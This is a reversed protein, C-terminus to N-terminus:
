NVLLYLTYNEDRSSQDFVGLVLTARKWEALDDENFSLTKDYGFHFTGPKQLDPAVLILVPVNERLHVARGAALLEHLTLSNRNQTTFSTWRAFREERPYFIRNTLYYPLTDALYDPEALIVSPRLDPRGQVLAALQSASSAAKGYDHHVASIGKFAQVALLLILVGRALWATGQRLLDNEYAASKPCHESQSRPAAMGTRLFRRWGSRKRCKWAAASLFTRAGDFGSNGANKASTAEVSAIWYAAVLAVLVTGQHRVEAPYVLRSVLECGIVAAFLFFSLYFRRGFFLYWIAVVLFVPFHRTLSFLDRAVGGHSRLALYLQRLVQPPQLALVSTVSTTKDPMMIVVAAAVGLLALFTIILFPKFEKWRIGISLWLCPEVGLFSLALVTGYVDTNALVALLAGAAVPHNLRTPFLACYGFVLPLILSYNRCMVSYEFLPLLGL